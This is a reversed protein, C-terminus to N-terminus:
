QPQIKGEISVGKQIRIKQFSLTGQIEAGSRLDLLDEAVAEGNIKGFIYTKSGKSIYLTGTLQGRHIFYCDPNVKIEGQHHGTFITHERIEVREQSFQHITQFHLKKRNMRFHFKEIWTFGQLNM